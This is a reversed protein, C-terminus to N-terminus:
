DLSIPFNAHGPMNNIDPSIGERECQLPIKGRHNM